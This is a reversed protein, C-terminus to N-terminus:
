KLYKMLNGERYEYSWQGFKNKKNIIYFTPYVYLSGKHEGISLGHEEKIYNNLESPTKFKIKNM